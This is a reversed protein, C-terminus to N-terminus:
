RIDELTVVRGHRRSLRKAKRALRQLDAPTAQRLGDTVSRISEADVAHSLHHCVIAAREEADPLEIRLHEEFRGSRLVAPDIDESHNTAGLLIVGEQEDLGDTLELFCNVVNTEYFANTGGLGRRGIGDLEDVFLVAGNERRAESFSTRMAKLMDGLHGSGSAQWAAVSTAILPLHLEAALASAFLTKGTGPPGVLLAGHDVEAWKIKGARWDQMDDSLASVWPRVSSFGPLASLPTNSQGRKTKSAALKVDETTVSRRGLFSGMISMGARLLDEMVDPQLPPLGLLRRGAAIQRGTPKCAHVLVDAARLLTQPVLDISSTLLIVQRFAGLPDVWGDARHATSRTLVKVARRPSDRSVLTWRQGTLLLEAARAYRDTWSEDVVIIIIGRAPARFQVFPRLTARLSSYALFYGLNKRLEGFAASSIRRKM